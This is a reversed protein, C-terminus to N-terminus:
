KANMFTGDHDIANQVRSSVEVSQQTSITIIQFLVKQRSLSCSRGKRVTKM